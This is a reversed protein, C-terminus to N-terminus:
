ITLGMIKLLNKRATGIKILEKCLIKLTTLRNAYTNNILTMFEKDFEDEVSQLRSITEALRSLMWYKTKGGRDIEAEIRDKFSGFLEPISERIIKKAQTRQTTIEERSGADLHVNDLYKANEMVHLALYIAVDFNNRTKMEEAESIYRKMTEMEGQHLLGIETQLEKLRKSLYHIMSVKWAFIKNLRIAADRIARVHVIIQPYNKLSRRKALTGVENQTEDFLQIMRDCRAALDTFAQKNQDLRSIINTIVGKQRFFEKHQKFTKLIEDHEKFHSEIDELEDIERKLEPALTNIESLQNSIHHLIGDTPDAIFNKETVNRTRLDDIKTDIEKKEAKVFDIEGGITDKIDTTIKDVIHRSQEFMTQENKVADYLERFKKVVEDESQQIGRLKEYFAKFRKRKKYPKHLKKM